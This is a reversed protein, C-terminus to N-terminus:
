TSTIPIEATEFLQQIEQCSKKLSSFDTVEKPAGLSSDKIKFAEEL